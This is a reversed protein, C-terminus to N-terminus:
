DGNFFIVQSGTNDFKIPVYLISKLANRIQKHKEPPAIFMMFGGGGAGILKGGYAGSKMAKEYIKELFGYGLTNYVKYFVKIIKETLEEYKM